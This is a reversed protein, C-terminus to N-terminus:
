EAFSFRLKGLSLHEFRAVGFDALSFCATATGHDASFLVGPGALLRRDPRMQLAVALRFHLVQFDPLDTQQLQCRNLSPRWDGCKGRDGRADEIDPAQQESWARQRSDTQPVM